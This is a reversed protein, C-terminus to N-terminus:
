EERLTMWLGAATFTINPLWAAIWAPLWGRAGLGLGLKLLVFYAFCIVISRAVGAFVNRRGSRAGFPIAIFVVVLCTWPAALRGQLQTRLWSADHPTLDERHLALYDLIEVISLETSRWARASLRRNIRLERNIRDPTESFEPVALANTHLVLKPESGHPSVVDFRQADFFVWVDNTFEARAAILWWSSGDPLITTVKPGLLVHTKFNYSDIEWIRHDRGNQFHANSQVEKDVGTGAVATRRALIAEGLDSAGPVWSESLAFSALSFCLGVGFYPACIRWLSMGAARMAILENHRAHNTLAYLLALLLAIPMVLVIFEPIKVAYYEAVDSTLLHKAQYDSLKAFVDGAVWFILFGCLCFGLPVLLERLLYRDLLRM